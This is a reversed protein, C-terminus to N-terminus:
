GEDGAEGEGADADAPSAPGAAGEGELGEEGEEEEAHGRPAAILCIAQDLEITPEVGEPLDLDEVRIADGVDLHSVDVSIIEPIKSPICRVPMEHVIHELSGGHLKVGVPVGEIHVPVEVDVAVGKQIRMFDVHVLENKFPHTQIDRVLTPIPEKEGDVELDVITNEVSIHQFLHMAEHADISLSVSETGTGYLVAPVRGGARLKRAVGKGTGERKAASLTTTTTM